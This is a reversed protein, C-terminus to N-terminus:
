ILIRAAQKVPKDFSVMLGLCFSWNAELFCQKGGGKKSQVRYLEFLTRNCRSFKSLSVEGIQTHTCRVSVKSDMIDERRDKRAVEFGLGDECCCCDLEEVEEMEGPQASGLVREVCM